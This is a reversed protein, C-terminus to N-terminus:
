YLTVNVLIIAYAKSCWCFFWVSQRWHDKTGKLATNNQCAILIIAFAILHAEINVTRQPTKWSIDPIILEIIKQNKFNIAYLLRSGCFFNAGKYTSHIINSVDSMVRERRGVLRFSIVNKNQKYLGASQM